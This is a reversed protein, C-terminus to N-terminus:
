KFRVLDIISAAASALSMLVSTFRHASPRPTPTPSPPEAQALIAHLPALDEPSLRLTKAEFIDLESIGRAAPAPAPLPTRPPSPLTDAPTTVVFKRGQYQFRDLIDPRATWLADWEPHNHASVFISVLEGTAESRARFHCPDGISLPELILYQSPTANPM